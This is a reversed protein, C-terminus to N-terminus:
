AAGTLTVTPVVHPISAASPSTTKAPARRAARAGIARTRRTAAASKKRKPAAASPRARPQAYHACGPRRAQRGHAGQKEAHGEGAQPVGLAGAVALELLHDVPVGPEYQKTADQVTQGTLPNKLEATFIPVGNLVLVLDLSKENKDSYRLESVM